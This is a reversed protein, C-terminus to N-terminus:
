PELFGEQRAREDLALTLVDGTEADSVDRIRTDIVKIYHKCELCYYVRVGNIEESEFYGLTTHDRNGCFPCRVRPVQWQHACLSCVLTRGSESDFGVRASSSCFPCSGELHTEPIITENLERLRRFYGTVVAGLVIRLAEEGEEPSMGPIESGSLAALLAEEFDVEPAAPLVEKWVERCVAGLTEVPILDGITDHELPAALLPIDLGQIRHTVRQRIDRAQQITEVDEPYQQIIIDWQMASVMPSTPYHTLCRSWFGSFLIVGNM